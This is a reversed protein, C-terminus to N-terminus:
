KVLENEPAESCDFRENEFDLWQSLVSGRVELEEGKKFIYQWQEDDTVHIEDGMPTCLCLWCSGATAKAIYPLNKPPKSSKFSVWRM